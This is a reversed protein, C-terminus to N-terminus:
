GLLDALTMEALAAKRRFPQVRASPELLLRLKGAPSLVGTTILTPPSDPARHLRGGRVVFRNKAEPRAELLDGAIGLEEALARPGENRDLFGNPGAEVLFGDDRVTTAHGGAHPGAEFLTVDARDLLRHALALGCIGGGVVAIRPPRREAASGTM